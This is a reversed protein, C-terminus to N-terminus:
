SSNRQSHSDTYYLYNHLIYQQVSEDCMSEIDSGRKLAEKVATSSIESVSKNLILIKGNHYPESLYPIQKVRDIADDQSVGGAGSDRPVIVASALSYLKHVNIPTWIKENCQSYLLDMGAVIYIHTDKYRQKLNEIIVYTPQYGKPDEAETTDVSMIHLLKSKAIALQLMNVRHVSSVLQKHPYSDHVPSFIISKVIYGKNVLWDYAYEVLLIHAHTVPDFSGMSVLVLPSQYM